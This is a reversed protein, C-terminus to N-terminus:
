RWREIHCQLRLVIRARIQGRRTERRAAQADLIGAPDLVQRSKGRATPPNLIKGRGQRCAQKAIYGTLRYDIKAGRRAALGHLKRAQPPRTVATSAEGSRSARTASFRERTFSRECSMTASA